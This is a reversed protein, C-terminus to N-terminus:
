LQNGNPKRAIMRMDRAPQHTQPRQEEIGELGHSELIASLEEVSYCWRHSMAENEYKPDGYLGMITMRGDPWRGDILAHAYHAIIKNLCPMELVLLGGPKLVRLWEALIGDVQWRNFHELVHIAMVEDAHGDPFPLTKTIDATVDPQSGAWNNPLDVNVWGPLIKGGCGLNLRAGEAM